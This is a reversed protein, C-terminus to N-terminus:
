SILSAKNIVLKPIINIHQSNIWSSPIVMLWGIFLHCKPNEVPREIKQSFGMHAEAYGALQLM